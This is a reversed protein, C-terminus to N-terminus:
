SFCLTWICPVYCFCMYDQHPRLTNIGSATAKYTATRCEQYVQRTRSHLLHIGKTQTTDHESRGAPKPATPKACQQQWGPKLAQCTHDQCHLQTAAVSYKNFRPTV